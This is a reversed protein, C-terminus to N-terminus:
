KMEQNCNMLKRIFNVKEVVSVLAAAFELQDVNEEVPPAAAPSFSSDLYLKVTSSRGVEAERVVAVPYVSKWM